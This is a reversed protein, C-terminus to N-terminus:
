AFICTIYRMQVMIQESLIVIKCEIGINKFEEFKEKVIERLFEHRNQYMMMNSHSCVLFETVYMKKVHKYNYIITMLIYYRKNLIM